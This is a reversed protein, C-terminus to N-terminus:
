SHTMLIDQTIVQGPAVMGGAANNYPQYNPATATIATYPGSPIPFVSYKGDSATPSSSIVSVSVIAGAIPLGSSADKVYGSLTGYNGGPPASPGCSSLVFALAVALPFRAVKM